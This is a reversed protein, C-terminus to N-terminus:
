ESKEMTRHHEAGRSLMESFEKADTCTLMFRNSKDGDKTEVEIGELNVTVKISVGLDSIYYYELDSQM